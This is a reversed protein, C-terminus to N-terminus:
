VAAIAGLETIPNEASLESVEEDYALMLPLEGLISGALLAPFLCAPVLYLMAPQTSNFNELAEITLCLGIFYGCLTITFYPRPFEGQAGCKPDANARFADFRLSLAIFFGPVVVDGLGLIAFEIAEGWFNFQKAIILTPKSIGAPFLFNVPVDLNTAVTEM